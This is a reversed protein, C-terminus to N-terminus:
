ILPTKNEFHKLREVEIYFNESFVIKYPISYYKSLYIDFGSNSANYDKSEILKCHTTKLENGGIEIIRPDLSMLEVFVEKEYFPAKYDWINDSTIITYPTKHVADIKRSLTMMMCGSFCPTAFHPKGTIIKEYKHSNDEDKFTYRVNKNKQDILYSEKSEKDGLTRTISVNLPEFAHNFEYESIIKLFEGTKVRSLVEAKLYYNGQSKDETLLKFNEESYSTGDQYYQYSGEIVKNQYKM